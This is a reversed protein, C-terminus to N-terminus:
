KQKQESSLDAKSLCPPLLYKLPQLCLQPGLNLFHLGNQQGAQSGMHLLTGTGWLERPSALFSTEPIDATPKYSGQQVDSSGTSHEGVTGLPQYRIKSVTLLHYLARPVSRSHNSASTPLKLIIVLPGQCSLPSHM